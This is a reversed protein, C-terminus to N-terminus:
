SNLRILELQFPDIKGDSALLYKGDPTFCFGSSCRGHGEGAQYMGLATGKLGFAAPSRSQCLVTPMGVSDGRVM